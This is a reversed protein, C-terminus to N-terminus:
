SVYNPTSTLRSCSHSILDAPRSSLSRFHYPQALRGVEESSRGPLNLIDVFKSAIDRADNPDAAVGFCTTKLIASLDGQAAMAFIPKGTQLYEYFKAPIRSRLQGQFILLVDATELLVQTEGWPVRPRFEICNNRLLEPAVRQAAAVIEPDNEGVFLVKMNGSNIRGSRTLDVM